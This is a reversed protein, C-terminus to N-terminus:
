YPLYVRRFPTTKQTPVKNPTPIRTPDISPPASETGTPYPPIPTADPISEDISDYISDYVSEVFEPMQFLSEIFKIRPGITPDILAPEIIDGCSQAGDTCAGVTSEIFNSVDDAVISLMERSTVEYCTNEINIGRVERARYEVNATYGVVGAIAFVGVIAVLM